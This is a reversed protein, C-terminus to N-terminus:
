AGAIRKGIELAKEMVEKNGQAEQPLDLQPLFKEIVKMGCIKPFEEFAQMGKERSEPGQGGPMVLVVKKEKLEPKEWHANMRDIFGKMLASVNNFYNPSGFVIIDSHAIKQFIKPMDDEITCTGKEECGRCAKCNEVKKERLNVLEIVAGKEKAGDLIRKLIAETNGERHSGNVALVKM